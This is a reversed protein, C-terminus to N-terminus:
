RCLRDVLCEWSIDLSVWVLLIGHIRAHNLLLVQRGLCEWSIDLSVWVVLTCGVTADKPFLM